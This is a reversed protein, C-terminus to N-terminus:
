RLLGHAHSLCLLCSARCREVRHDLSGAVHFLHCQPGPLLHDTQPVFSQIATQDLHAYLGSQHRDLLLHHGIPFARPDLRGAQITAPFITRRGSVHEQHHFPFHPTLQLPVDMYFLPPPPSSLRSRVMGMAYRSGLAPIDFVGGM